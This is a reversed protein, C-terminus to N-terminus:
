VRATKWKGTKFRKMMWLGQFVATVSILIWAPLAGWNLVLCMYYILPIRLVWAAFITIGAPVWTDGAGELAGSFILALGLFPESPAVIWLYSCVLSVAQHDHVFLKALPYAFAAYVLSVAGMVLAGQKAAKWAGAEARAVEGAGLNQGVLTAAAIAYSFGIMFAIGEVTIGVGFAAVANVGQSTRALIGIKVLWGLSDVSNQVVMPFGVRLIRLFWNWSPLFVGSYLAFGHRPKIFYVFLYLCGLIRSIGSALAAGLLGLPKIPGIGFILFYALIVGVVCVAGLVKLPTVMDGLGRLISAQTHIFYFFLASFILPLYYERGQEMLGPPLGMLKLIPGSQWWSLFTFLLSFGVGLMLAQRGTEEAKRPEMKGTFRSVLAVTGVNIGIAISQFFWLYFGGGTVVAMPGEGLHAIFLRDTTMNLLSFLSLLINPWALHWVTKVMDGSIIKDRNDSM